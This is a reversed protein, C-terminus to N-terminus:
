QTLSQLQANTLRTPYYALQKISSNIHSDSIRAGFNLKTVTPISGNTDTAVSGGNLSLAIDNVKYGLGIKNTASITPAGVDINAQSVGGDIILGQYSSFDTTAIRYDNGDNFYAVYGGSDYKTYHKSIITGENQNYWSSFNTGTIQATDPQRTVTSGSTPIYSTSFSGAEVQAGWVYVGNAGTGSFSATNYTSSNALYFEPDNGVGAPIYSVICKYWGNPYEIISATTSNLTSSSAIVGNILDFVCFNSQNDGRIMFYQDGNSKLFVSVTNFSTSIAINPKITHTGNTTNAVLLTATNTGDPAITANPTRILNVPGWYSSYMDSSQTYLNTRSEEILLGLSEGTAPDHDFRAEDAASTKILGDAGVYTGTSSREFTILNNGSIRDVLSKNRAFDLLLSPKGYNIFDAKGYHIGM